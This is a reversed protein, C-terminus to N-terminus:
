KLLEIQKNYWSITQFSMSREKSKKNLRNYWVKGKKEVIQEEVRKPDQFHLKFHCGQCLSIGNDLDYRLHGYSGKYYFHHVQVAKTGCVECNPKFCKIFWLKDATKALKRKKNPTKKLPSRKM